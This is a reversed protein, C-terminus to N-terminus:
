TSIDQLINMYISIYCSIKVNQRSRVNHTGFFRSFNLGMRIVMFEFLYIKVFISKIVKKDYACINHSLFLYKIIVPM